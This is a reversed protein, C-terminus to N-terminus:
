LAHLAIPIIQTHSHPVRGRQPLSRTGTCMRTDTRNTPSGHPVNNKLRALCLSCAQFGVCKDLDFSSGLKGNQRMGQPGSVRTSFFAPQGSEEDYETGMVDMPQVGNGDAFRGSAFHGQGTAIAVVAPRM